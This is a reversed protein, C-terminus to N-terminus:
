SQEPEAESRRRRLNAFSEVLELFEEYETGAVLQFRNCLIAAENEPINEATLFASLLDELLACYEQYAQHYTHPQEATVDIGDAFVGEEVIKRQMFDAVSETLKPSSFFGELKPLLVAVHEDMPGSPGRSSVSPLCIICHGGKRMSYPQIRLSQQRRCPQPRWPPLSVASALLPGPTGNEGAFSCKELFCSRRRGVCLDCLLCLVPCWNCLVTPSWGKKSM